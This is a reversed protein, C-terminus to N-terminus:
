YTYNGLKQWIKLANDQIRSLDQLIQEHGARQNDEQSMLQKKAEELSLFFRSELLLNLTIIM